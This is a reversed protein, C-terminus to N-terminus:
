PRTVTITTQADVTGGPAQRYCITWTTTVTVDKWFAGFTATGGSYVQGPALVTLTGPGPGVPGSCVDVYPRGTFGTAVPWIRTGNATTGTILPPVAFQAFVAGVCLSLALFLFASKLFKM